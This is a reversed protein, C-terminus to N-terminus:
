AAPGEPVWWAAVGARALTPGGLLFQAGPPAPVAVPQEGRHIAFQLAGRRRLRLGDPLQTTALGAQAAAAALWQGLTGADVVGAHAHWRGHQLWAPWGDAYTAQVQVGDAPALLDRWQLGHAGEALAQGDPQQLPLQRGPRLSEVGHVRMPLGAALDGPPLPVPIAMDATKSGARPGLVVVGPLALAQSTFAPPAHLLSPVVVLAYGLLPAHPPLIDVDLGLARLAAHYRMAVGLGPMDAGHPQVAAMWLSPFDLVLAVPAPRPALAQADLGLRALQAPLAALEAAVAAAEDGGTDRELDPRHLGSHMQEQAYPLQRWRFYSVLEAGHAFAEWTWARVMGPAPLANWAAWNVPGAQQEMVWWRGSGCGRYLDHHFGTIDPAGTTAWRLREAEDLGPAIDTHGLPYSDWSSIDCDAGLAHADVDTFLGMFNHLVPVGPAHVALLARQRRHYALVADACFRRWDLAHAPLAGGPQGVPFGIDDFRAWQASWFVTGWAANLADISSHRAALWHRFAALAAPSYSAVTDHCGYENDLQWAVVAPHRGYRQAMAGVIRDSAALFAPSSFDCHRRSGFAKPQGQADIPLVDPHADVLWHPPAATPTGLVVQLGEAALTDIAEDLWAWDFRGAEPEMLAWAFEAIRVVRLGLERMRRADDRWLHRPWQEPYYCVGLRLPLDDLTM